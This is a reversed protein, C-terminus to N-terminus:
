PVVSIPAVNSGNGVTQGEALGMVDLADYTEVIQPIEYTFGFTRDLANGGGIGICRSRRTYAGTRRDGSRGDQGFAADRPV